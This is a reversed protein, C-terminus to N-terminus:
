KSGDLGNKNDMAAITATIERRIAAYKDILGNLISNAKEGDGYQQVFNAFDAYQNGKMSGNNIVENYNRIGDALQDIKQKTDYSEKALEILGSTFQVTDTDKRDAFLENLVANLQEVSDKANGANEAMMGLVLTDTKEGGFSNLWDNIGSKNGELENNFSRLMERLEGVTKVFPEPGDGFIDYKSNYTAFEKLYKNYEKASKIAEKFSEAGAKGVKKFSNEVKSTNKDVINLEQKVKNLSNQLPKLNARIVVRMQELDM